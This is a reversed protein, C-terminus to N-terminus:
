ECVVECGRLTLRKPLVESLGAGATFHECSLLRSLQYRLLWGQHVRDRLEAVQQDSLNCRQQLGQGQWAAPGTELWWEAAEAFELARAEQLDTLRERRARM